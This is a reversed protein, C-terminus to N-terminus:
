SSPLRRFAKKTVAPSCYPILADTPSSSCPTAPSRRVRRRHRGRDAADRNRRDSRWRPMEVPATRCWGSAVRWIRASCGRRISVAGQDGALKRSAPVDVRLDRTAHTRGQGPLHARRGVRGDRRPEDFLAALGPSGLPVDLALTWGEAPFSLHGSGESGFRKLVALFSAARAEASVSSSPACRRRLALRCSSSTSLSAEHGTSCTGDELATSRTSSARWPFWSEPGVHRTRAPVVDRQVGRSVAPHPAIIPPAVPVRLSRGLDLQLPDHRAKPALDSLLAHNARTLVSRGLHRGGALGDVWAVSYRFADQDESLRTMCADLDETRETDVLMTSTEITLVRLVAELVIGTLGMGGCTASFVDSRREPGCEITGIPTAVRLHDLHRSITGDLHHNKGHIDSAIAGGLTVFRTGPTVPPFLGKPVLFRLLKDMSVGAEARM